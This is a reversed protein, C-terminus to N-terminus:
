WACMLRNGVYTWGVEGWTVRLHYVKINNLLKQRTQNSTMWKTKWTEKQLLVGLSISALAGLPIDVDLMQLTHLANQM